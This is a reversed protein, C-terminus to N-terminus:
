LEFCENASCLRISPHARALDFAWNFTQLSFDDKDFVVWITEYPPHAYEVRQKRLLADAMLSNPSRGM